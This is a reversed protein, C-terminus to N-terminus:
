DADKIPQLIVYRNLRGMMGRLSGSGPITLTWESVGLPDCKGTQLMRGVFVWILSPSM